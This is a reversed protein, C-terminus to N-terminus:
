DGSITITSCLAPFSSIGARAAASSSYREANINSNKVTALSDKPNANIGELSPVFLAARHM